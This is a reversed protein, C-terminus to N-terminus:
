LNAKIAEILNIGSQAGSIYTKNNIEFFPVGNIGMSRAITDSKKIENIAKESTLAEYVEKEDINCSKGIEVLFNRDGINKGKSFYADFIKSLVEHGINKSFALKILIHSFNTNPTIQIKELNFELNEKLAEQVMNDYMPKAAEKSGFKYKLYEERKIGKEPMDPNLQFPAHEFTFSTNKFNKLAKLLRSHGIYCWGCITDAFFKINM